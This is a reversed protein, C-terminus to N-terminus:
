LPEIDDFTAAQGRRVGDSDFVEWVICQKIMFRKGTSSIRVGQYNDIYGQAAVTETSNSRITSQDFDTCTGDTSGSDFLWCLSLLCM